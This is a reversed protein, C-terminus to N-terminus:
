SGDYKMGSELGTQTQVDLRTDMGKRFTNTTVGEETNM